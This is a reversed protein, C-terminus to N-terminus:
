HAEILRECLHILTFIFIPISVKDENANMLTRVHSNRAGAGILGDRQEIRVRIFSLAIIKM